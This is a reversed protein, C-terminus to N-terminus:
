SRQGPAPAVVSVDGGPRLTQVGETVVLDGPLLAADVLVADANRQLIRIPLRAAKGERVIWVFAGESGWQIALPDVAPYEEGTFELAIRFAMGARLRDDDNAIAAQVRLTRSTEDVRNDVATIQGEITVGPDSVPSAEVRGGLTILPTVREPVRFDIILSSRDEIRTVVTLSTVLDGTQVEILGVFGAIPAKISHDALDREASRLALEATRLALEADQRQLETTAGSGSLRDLRKVTALTDEYVLQAREVMLEAAEADLEAILDGAEVPTGPAVSISLVRGSVGPSLVVSQAGRASGVATVIDRLVQDEVEAAVVKAGGGGGGQGGSTGEAAASAEAPVIGADLLPALLGARDLWPRTGPVFRAALPVAVAALGAVLLLQPIIRM